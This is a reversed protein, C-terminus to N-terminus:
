SAAPKVTMRVSLPSSNEQSMQFRRRMGLARHITQFRCTRYALSVVSSCMPWISMNPGNSTVSFSCARYVRKLDFTRIRPPNTQGFRYDIRPAFTQLSSRWKTGRWLRCDGTKGEVRSGVLLTEGEIRANVYNYEIIRV